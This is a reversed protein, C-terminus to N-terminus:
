RVAVGARSFDRAQLVSMSLAVAEDGFDLMPLPLKLRKRMLDEGLAYTVVRGVVEFRVIDQLRV